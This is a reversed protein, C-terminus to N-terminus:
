WPQLDAISLDESSATLLLAVSGSAL